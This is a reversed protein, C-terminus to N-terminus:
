WFASIPARMASLRGAESIRLFFAEQESEVARRHYDFRNINWAYRRAVDTYIGTEPAATIIDVNDETHKIVM